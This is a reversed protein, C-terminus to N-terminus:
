TLVGTRLAYASFAIAAASLIGGAWAQDWQGGSSEIAAGGLRRVAAYFLAQLSLAGVFLWVALGSRLLLAVGAAGYLCASLMMLLARARDASSWATETPASRGEAFARHLVLGAAAVYFLGVASTIFIMPNLADQRSAAM